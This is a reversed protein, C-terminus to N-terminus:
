IDMQLEGTLFLRYRCRFLAEREANLSVSTAFM